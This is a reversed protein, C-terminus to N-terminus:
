DCHLIRSETVIYDMPIDHAECPLSDALQCDYGVGIKVGDAGHLLRDYFGAGRGLRQENVDFALAPELWLWPQSPCLFPPRLGPLSHIPEPIRYRGPTLDTELSQIRVMEYGGLDAAYRPLLIHRGSDLRRRLLASIDPEGRIAMFAALAADAGLSACLMVLQNVIAGDARSRQDPLAALRQRAQERLQQKSLAKEPM